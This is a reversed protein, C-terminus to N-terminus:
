LIESPDGIRACLTIVRRTAVIDVSYYISIEIKIFLVGKIKSIFVSTIKDCCM